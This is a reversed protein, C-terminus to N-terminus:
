ERIALSGRITLWGRILEAQQAVDPHEPGDVRTLSDRGRRQWPREQVTPWDFVTRHRGLADSSEKHEDGFLGTVDLLLALAWARGRPTAHADELVDLLMPVSTWGARFLEDEPSAADGEYADGAKWRGRWDVV